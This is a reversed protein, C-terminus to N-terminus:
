LRNKNLREMIKMALHGFWSVPSLDVADRPCLEQCCLCEICLDPSIKVPQGLDEQTIAQVPCSDLCLKCGTCKNTNCTPKCQLKSLVYRSLGPLKMEFWFNNPLRFDKVLPLPISDGLLDYNNLNNCLGRKEARCLYTVRAPDLNILRCCVADLLVTNAGGALIGLPRPTGNGPGNGEMALVGDVISLRPPFAQIIDVLLEFFNDGTDALRHYYAKRMGPIIGYLNKSAATILTATHTKLKPLNIILDVDLIASSVDIDKLFNGKIPVTTVGATDFDVAEIGLEWCVEEIGSIKLARATRSKGAVVGGSSDGVLVQAGFDLLKQALVKVVMPHTTVAKEPRAPSLLNPKLLVKQGPQVWHELGGLSTLLIEVAKKVANEEYSQCWALAVRNDM